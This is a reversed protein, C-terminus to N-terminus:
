ARIDHRSKAWSRCGTARWCRLPCNRRSPPQGCGTWAVTRPGPATTRSILISNPLGLMGPRQKWTAIEVRREPNDLVPYGLIAFRKPYALVAEVAQENAQPDWSVPPHLIAGDIGAADMDRIAEEVLYPAPRHPPTPTGRRWLHVQADIILMATSGSM